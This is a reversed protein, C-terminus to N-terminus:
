YDGDQLEKITHVFSDCMQEKTQWDATTKAKVPECERFVHQEPMQSHTNVVVVANVPVNDLKPFKPVVIVVINTKTHFM